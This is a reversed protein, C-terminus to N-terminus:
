PAPDLAIEAAGRYSHRADFGDASGVAVIIAYTQGPALDQDYADGSALPIQVEIITQGDRETGGFALIDNTGGLSEDTPHAGVPATGYADWVSVTDGDVAGLIFNAGQMRNEPDIGVAVWGTTEGVLALWLSEADNRWLVRVAGAGVEHAYEGDAIVGDPV